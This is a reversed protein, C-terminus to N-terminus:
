PGGAAVKVKVLIADRVDQFRAGTFLDEDIAVNPGEGCRELCFTARIDVMETLGEADLFKMLETLLDQGGRVFCNTGVCVRVVVPAEVTGTLSM